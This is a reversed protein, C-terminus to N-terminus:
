LTIELVQIRAEYNAIYPRPNNVQILVVDGANLLLGSDNGTSFEFEGTLDAGFMTHATDQTVGNVKLDYRGINEGSFHVRQLVSQKFPPVTYSVITATANSALAIIENYKSVVSSGPSPTDTLNVNISGDANVVLENDCNTGAIRISSHKDGPLPDNDCATIRVNGVNVDGDFIIPIPNNSDYFDGCEDVLIVRDAVIPDAEYIAKYHDDPPINNKDQEEQGISAGSAVTFASIDLPPWQGLQANNITGVILQTCSNVRKIQVALKTGSTTLLYASAKVKFGITSAVTILGFTTGDATFAQPAVASWKRELAM